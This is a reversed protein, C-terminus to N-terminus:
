KEARQASQKESPDNTSQGTVTPGPQANKERELRAKSQTYEKKHIDQVVDDGQRERGATKYHAPNVNIKKSM